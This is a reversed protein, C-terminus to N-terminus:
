VMLFTASNATAPTSTAAPADAAAGTFGSGDTRRTSLAVSRGAGFSGFSGFSTQRNLVTRTAHGGGDGTGAPDSSGGPAGHGGPATSSGPVPSGIGGNGGPTANGGSTDRITCCPISISCDGGGFTGSSTQRYLVTLTGQGGYCGRRTCSKGM